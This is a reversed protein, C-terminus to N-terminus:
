RYAEEFLMGQYIIKVKGELYIEHFSEGEQSFYVRLTEGSQVMVDTPSKVLSHTAAALVAAVCGTGCALTEGEVGREYTRVKMQHADLVTVFDANTGRPAFQHHYRIQRGAGTVDWHDLDEVFVVAHPVGTDVSDLVYTLGDAELTLGTQVTSPDTFKVKILDDNIEAHIVGAITEWCLPNGAIGKLYALRAVCRAANGCMEAMSGDSNFFRWKFDAIDSPELVILGDAGVSVKRQCVKVAFASLDDIDLSLDLNDIIIFDNGSGSMKYFEIM